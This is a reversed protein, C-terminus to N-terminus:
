EGKPLLSLHEHTILWRHHHRTFINTGRGSGKRWQDKFWGEWHFIYICSASEDTVTLWKVDTIQYHEDRITNWNEEFAKPDGDM